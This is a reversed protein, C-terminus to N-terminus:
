KKTQLGDLRVKTGGFDVGERGIHMIATIKFYYLIISVFAWSYIDAEKGPSQKL